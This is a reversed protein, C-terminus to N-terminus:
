LFAVRIRARVAMHTVAYIKFAGGEFCTTQSCQAEYILKKFHSEMCRLQNTLHKPLVWTLCPPSRYSSLNGVKKPPHPPTPTGHLTASSRGGGARRVVAHAQM